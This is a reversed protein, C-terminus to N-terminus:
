QVDHHSSKQVGGYLPSQKFDQAWYDSPKQYCDVFRRRQDDYYPSDPDMVPRAIMMKPGNKSEWNNINYMCFYAITWAALMYKSGGSILMRATMSQGPTMGFKVMANQLIDLPIRGIRRFVNFRAKRYADMMHVKAVWGDNPTLKRMKLYEKRWNRCDFM